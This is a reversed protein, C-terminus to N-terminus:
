ATPPQTAKWETIADDVDGTIGLWDKAQEEAGVDGAQLRQIIDVATPIESLIMSILALNM